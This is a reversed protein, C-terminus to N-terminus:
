TPLQVKVRLLGLHFIAAYVQMPVITDHQHAVLFIPDHQLLPQWVIQPLNLRRQLRMPVLQHAHDDLTREIPVPQYVPQHIRAVSHM